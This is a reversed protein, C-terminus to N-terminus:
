GSSCVWWSRAEGRGVLGDVIEVFPIGGSYM